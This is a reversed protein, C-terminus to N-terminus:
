GTAYSSVAEESNDYLDAEDVHAKSGGRADNLSKPLRTVQKIPQDKGGGARVREVVQGQFEPDALLRERESKRFADLDGGIERLTLRDKHWDMLAAGPNASNRIRSVTARDAPDGPNLGSLEKYAAEFKEKHAIHAQGLSTEFNRNVVREEARNEIYSAYGEPDILPDPIAPAKAAEREVPRQSKLAADLRANIARLETAEAESTQRRTREERLAVSLDGKPLENPDPKDGAKVDGDKATKDDLKEDAEDKDADEVTHDGELGDGMEELHQDANNDAPKDDFLGDSIERETNKIGAKLEADADLKPM